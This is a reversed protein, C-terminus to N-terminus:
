EHDFDCIEVGVRTITVQAHDGFRNLFFMDDLEGLFQSIEDALQSLKQNHKKNKEKVTGIYKRSVTDWEGLSIINEVPYWEAEEISEGNLYLYDTHASFVCEDGDNFYPTYQFWSFSHLEPNDQFISKSFEDFVETTIQIKKKKLNRIEQDIQDLQKLRQRFKM